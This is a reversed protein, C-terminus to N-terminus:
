FRAASWQGWNIQGVAKQTEVIIHLLGRVTGMFAYLIEPGKGDTLGTDGEEHADLKRELDRAMKRIATRENELADTKKFRAWNKFVRQIRERM